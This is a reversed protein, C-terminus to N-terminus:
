ISYSSCSRCLISFFAQYQVPSIELPISPAGTNLSNMWHKTVFSSGRKEEVLCVGTCPASQLLFRNRSIMVSCHNHVEKIVVVADPFQVHLVHFFSTQLFISHQAVPASLCLPNPWLKLFNRCKVWIRLICTVVRSKGPSWSYDIAIKRGPCIDSLQELISGDLWAVTLFQSCKRFVKKNFLLM